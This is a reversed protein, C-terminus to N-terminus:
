ILWNSIRSFSVRVCVCASVASNLAAAYVFSSPSFAPFPRQAAPSSHQCRRSFCNEPKECVCLWVRVRTPTTTTTTYTSTPTLTLKFTSTPLRCLRCAKEALKAKTENKPKPKAKAESQPQQQSQKQQKTTTARCWYTSLKNNNKKISKKKIQGCKDIETKRRKTTAVAAAAAAAAARKANQKQGVCAVCVNVLLLVHVCVLERTAFVCICVCILLLALCSRVCLIGFNTKKKRFQNACCARQIKRM